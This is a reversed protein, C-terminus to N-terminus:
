PNFLRNIFTVNPTRTPDEKWINLQELRQRLNDLWSGLARTSTFGINTWSAPVTNFYIATMPTEMQETM